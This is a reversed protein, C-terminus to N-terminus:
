EKWLMHTLHCNKLPILQFIYALRYYRMTKMSLTQNRFAKERYPLPKQVEEKEQLKEKTNRLLQTVNTLAWTEHRLSTTKTWGSTTGIVWNYFHIGPEKQLQPLLPM